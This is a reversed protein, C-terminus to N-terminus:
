QAEKITESVNTTLRPATPGQTPGQNHFNDSPCGCTCPFNAAQCPCTNAQVYKVGVRHTCCKPTMLPVPKNNVTTGM